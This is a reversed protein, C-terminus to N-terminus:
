PIALEEKALTIQNRTQRYITAADLQTPSNITQKFVVGGSGAPANEDGAVGVPTKTSAIERANNMSVTPVIKQSTSIYQGIQKADAAVKNLDLVPTIVPNFEGTDTLLDSAQTLADKFAAATRVMLDEAANEATKDQDIGIAFGEAIWAGYQRTVRSPSGFDFIEEFKDKVAGGFDELKHWFKQINDGWGGILGDIIASALNKGADRLEQGRTRIIEALGNIFQTLITFAADALRLANDKLGNIFAIVADVGARVIRNLNTTLGYIVQILANAGATALTTAHDALQTVFM